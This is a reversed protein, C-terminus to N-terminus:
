PQAHREGTVLALFRQRFQPYLFRDCLRQYGAQGLRDARAPDKLLDIIRAAAEQPDDPDDVLIGTEADRIICQAADLNSGLCPKGWRMAELYVLGFGEGRSPMAFLFCQRYLKQLDADAVFGPMFIARQTDEPLTHALALLRERDSGKGALVLQVDPFQARILPLARIMTDHGKHRQLASMRGVHLLVRSGLRQFSGDVAELTITESVAGPSTLAQESAAPDISLDCTVVPLHPFQALVREKTHDSIAMPVTAASLGLRGERNPLPAFVEVGNLRVICRVWNLLSFPLLIMALNVHDCFVFAYRHALLARWVALTFRAKSNDFGRAHVGSFRDYASSTGPENLGLLDVQYGADILAHVVSRNAVAIGGALALM